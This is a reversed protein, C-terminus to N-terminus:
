RMNKQFERAMASLQEFQEQSMQGSALLQQVKQKPDGVFNSKFENFRELVNGGNSQNNQFMAFIPNM